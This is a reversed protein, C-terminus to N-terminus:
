FTEGLLEQPMEIDIDIVVANEDDDDDSDSENNGRERTSRRIRMRPLPSSPNRRVIPLLRSLLGMEDLASLFSDSSDEDIGEEIINQRFHARLTGLHEDGNESHDEEEERSQQRQRRGPAMSDGVTHFRFDFVLL